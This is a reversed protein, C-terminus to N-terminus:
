DPLEVIEAVKFGAGPPYDRELRRRAEPLSAARVQVLHSEAWLDLFGTNNPEGADLLERVRRNFIRAEYTRIRM